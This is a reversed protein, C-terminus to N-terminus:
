VGLRRCRPSATAGLRPFRLRSRTKPMFRRSLASTGAWSGAGLIVLGLGLLVLRKNKM